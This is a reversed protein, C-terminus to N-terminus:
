NDLIIKKLSEAKKDFEEKTILELDLLEKLQKLEAIANDKLEKNTPKNNIPKNNIPKKTVSLNDQVIHKFFEGIEQPKLIIGAVKREFNWSLVNNGNKDNMSLWLGLIQKKAIADTVYIAEIIYDANDMNTTSKLGLDILNKKIHASINSKDFPRRRTEFKGMFVLADKLIATSSYTTKKKIKDIQRSKLQGFSFLPLFLFLIVLRKM